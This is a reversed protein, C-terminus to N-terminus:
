CPAFETDITVIQNTGLYEVAFVAGRLASADDFLSMSRGFASRWSASLCRDRSDGARRDRADGLRVSRDGRKAAARSTASFEDAALRHFRRRVHTAPRDYIEQPAGIQEVVGHNMVAIQDAM